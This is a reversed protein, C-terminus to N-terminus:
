NASQMINWMIFSPSIKSNAHTKNRLFSLILQIRFYALNPHINKVNENKIKPCYSKKCQSFTQNVFLYNTCNNLPIHQLIIKDM